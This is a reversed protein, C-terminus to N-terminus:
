SNYFLIAWIVFILFFLIAGIKMSFRIHSTFANIETTFAPYKPIVYREMKEQNFIWKADFEIKNKVLIRYYKLVKIRFYFNFSILVFFIPIVLYALYKM